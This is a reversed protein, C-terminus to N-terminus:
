WCMEKIKDMINARQQELKRMEVRLKTTEALTADKSKRADNLEGIKLTLANMTTVQGMLLDVGTDKCIPYFGLVKASRALLTREGLAVLYDLLTTQPLTALSLRELYPLYESNEAEFLGSSYVKETVFAGHEAINKRRLAASVAIDSNAFGDALIVTPNPFCGHAMRLVETIGEMSKFTCTLFIISEIDYTDDKVPLISSNSRNLSAFFRVDDLKDLFKGPAPAAKALKAQELLQTKPIRRDGALAGEPLKLIDNWFVTM